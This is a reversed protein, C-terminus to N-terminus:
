PQVVTWDRPRDEELRWHFNSQGYGTKGECQYETFCFYHYGTKNREQFSTSFANRIRATASLKDGNRGELSVAFSEPAKGTPAYTAKTKASRIFENEKGRYIYGYLVDRGDGLTIQFSNWALQDSCQGSAWIWRRIGARNGWGWAHDRAGVANITYHRNGVRVSGTYRGQQEYHHSSTQSLAGHAEAWNYAPHIAHFTVDMRCAGDDYAFAVTKLPDIPHFSLPSFTFRDEGIDEPINFDWRTFRALLVDGRWMVFILDGIKQNPHVGAYGFAGITSAPDYFDFYFAERWTPEATVPHIFEDQPTLLSV